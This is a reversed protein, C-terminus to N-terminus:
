SWRQWHFRPEPNWDNAANRLGQAWNLIGFGPNPNWLRFKGPNKNWLCFNRFVFFSVEGYVSEMGRLQEKRSKEADQISNMVRAEADKVVDTRSSVKNALEKMEQKCQSAAKALSMISHDRCHGSTICSRCIMRRCSEDFLRVKEEHKSCCLSVVSPELVFVKHDHSTKNSNHFRVADSCMDDDCDLCYSKAPHRRNDRACVNCIPLGESREHQPEPNQIISLLAYNKPFGEVGAQPVNIEERCSPCCFPNESVLRDLCSSCFSHGCSLQRPILDQGDFNECCVDCELGGSAM